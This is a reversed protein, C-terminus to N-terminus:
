LGFRGALARLREVLRSAFSGNQRLLREAHVQSIGLLDGIEAASIEPRASRLDEATCVLSPSLPDLYRFPDDLSRGTRLVSEYTIFDDPWRDEALIQRAESSTVRILYHTDYIREEQAIMWDQGCASCHALALWWLHKGHWKLYDITAFVRKDLGDWGMAVAALNPLLRCECSQFPRLFDRLAERVDAAANRDRYDASVVTMYLENGFLEELEPHSYLWREFPEVGLDGRAFEWLHIDPQLSM